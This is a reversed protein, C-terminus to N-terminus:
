ALATQRRRRYGRTWIFLALLLLVGGLVCLSGLIRIQGATDAGQWATRASTALSMAKGLDGKAFADRASALDTQPDVGLLGLPAAAGGATRAQSAASLEDLVALENTAETSAVILGSREFATRLTPPSTTQENAADAAIQDRQALVDRAQDIFATTQDFQWTDLSRRIEPPLDWDGAASQAAAYATLATSRQQLQSAQSPDVVWERWIGVFSRGTTRELLDLLRRWDTSRGSLIETQAAYAPQYAAKGSRAAQWVGRLGDPGALAAIQGAVELTAGYLYADTASSSEGATVWDNFPVAAQRLRDTLVPAHDTYGLKEVAQEAYYSAFGEQIWRDTVLDSNFWMHAMEHLIVFPDAFYSVYVQGSAEDYAGSFGNVEQTSAEEVTLTTGIPDGLGIADRLLPYGASLVRQVQDAWGVDDSWYRLAVNLPGITVSRVSFDGPSVPEVATFWASLEASDDLIGSSFEVQGSGFVARTLGGFEEQVTFDPPFVVSVSSGATNPSGFASVPFSMLNHSLRLDRDTSGGTDVLDFTLDFSESQGSYLREGLGVVAIVSSGTASEVTLPLPQGSASTAGFDASSSPLTMQIKDYYYHRDGNDGSHSTAVVVALVHVRGAAPDATWTSTSVFSLDTQSAEVRAPTAAQWLSAAVVLLLAGAVTKASAHWVGGGM